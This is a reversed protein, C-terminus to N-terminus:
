SGSVNISGIDVPLTTNEQIAISPNLTYYYWINGELIVPSDALFISRVTGWNSTSQGFSGSIANIISGSTSTTWTTKNNALEIRAYGGTPEVVDAGSIISQSLSGTSIGVYWNAPSGASIGGFQQNLLKNIAYMTAPM